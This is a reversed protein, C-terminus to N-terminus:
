DRHARVGSAETSARPDNALVIPAGHPTALAAREWAAARAVLAERSLVGKEVVLRELAALWQRYHAGRGGVPGSEPPAHIERALAATWESWAFLGAEHLALVLAFAQAEWPERFRPQDGDGAGPAAENVRM